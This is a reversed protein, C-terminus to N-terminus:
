RNANIVNRYIPTVPMAFESETRRIARLFVMERPREFEIYLREIELGNISCLETFWEQDPYWEGHWSWNGPKPTTSILVSGIHMAEMINRWVPAQDSVHETTGINSIVDFTGLLLPKRLDLAIAGDQANMDVSTHTFGLYQFYTKYIHNGNKKNGLELMSGVALPNYLALEEPRNHFPGVASGSTM